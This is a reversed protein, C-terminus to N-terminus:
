DFSRTGIMHTEAEVSDGLDNAQRMMGNEVFQRMTEIETKKTKSTPIVLSFVEQLDEMTMDRDEDFAISMAEEISDEINRGSFDKTARVLEGIDFKEVGQKRLGLHIGIIQERESASPLDIFFRGEFRDVM